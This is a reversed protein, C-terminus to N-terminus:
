GRGRGQARNRGHSRARRRNAGQGHGRGEGQSQQGRGRGEGQSQQGRGRSEGQSQQGRGRSEGQSQQGRVRGFGGQALGLTSPQPQQVVPEADGAAIDMARAIAAANPQERRGMPARINVLPAKLYYFMYARSHDPEEMEQVVPLVSGDLHFMKLFDRNTQGHLHVVAIKNYTVINSGPDPVIAVNPQPGQVLRRSDVRIVNEETDKANANHPVYRVRIVAPENFQFYYDRGREPDVFVGFRDEIAEPISTFKAPDNHLLSDEALETMEKDGQEGESPKDNEWGDTGTKRSLTDPDHLLFPFRRWISKHMLDHRALAEFSLDMKTLDKEPFFTKLVDLRAKHTHRGNDVELDAWALELLPNPAEGPSPNLWKDAQFSVLQRVVRLLIDLGNTSRLEDQKNAAGARLADFPVVIQNQLFLAQSNRDGPFVDRLDVLNQLMKAM